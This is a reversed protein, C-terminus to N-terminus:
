EDKLVDLASQLCDAHGYDALQMQWSQLRARWQQKQTESPSVHRILEVWLASVNEVFEGAEEGYDSIEVSEVYWHKFFVECLTELILEAKDFDELEWQEEVWLMSEEFAAWPTNSSGHDSVFRVERPSAPQLLKQRIYERLAVAKASTNFPSM